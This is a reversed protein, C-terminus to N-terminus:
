LRGIPTTVATFAQLRQVAKKTPAYRTRLKGAQATVISKDGGQLYAQLQTPPVAIELRTVNQKDAKESFLVRPAPLLVMGNATALLVTDTAAFPQPGTVSLHMTCLKPISLSDRMVIDLDVFQGSPGEFRQPLLFYQMVGPGVFYEEIGRRSPQGKGGGSGVQSTAGQPSICSSLLASIFLFAFALRLMRTM